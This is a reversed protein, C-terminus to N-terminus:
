LRGLASALLTATSAIVTDDHSATATDRNTYIALILAAGSPPQVIAIDNAAGYATSTGTKDGVTWSPPLGARIRAAGTTNARLWGTLRDRDAPHLDHGVTLDRLNRAMAAPTTTDRPSAPSWDNLETEWRDLWTVPDGLGRAYRTLGAPGGIRELLLNGALNDSRTIAAHCLEAVTLGDAVHEATVPSNPLVDADTWHIVRDLLGPERGRARDLVAAAALAKFTSLLPFREDPRHAVTRGTGTDIGVAGIRGGYQRELRRLGTGAQAPTGPLLLLTATAAGGALLTRRTLPENM